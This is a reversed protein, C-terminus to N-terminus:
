IIFISIWATFTSYHFRGFLRVVDALFAFLRSAVVCVGFLLIFNLLLMKLLMLLLYFYVLLLGVIVIVVVVIIIITVTEIVWINEIIIILTILVLIAHMFITILIFLVWHFFWGLRLCHKFLLLLIDKVIRLMLIWKLNSSIIWVIRM